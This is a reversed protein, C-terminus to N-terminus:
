ALLHFRMFALIQRIIERSEESDHFLDFAHPAEPHNTFTIPLNCTLAQALFRDLTENLHPMEDLGARAIFLPVDKPLDAVSKGACPNVFGWMGAADAVHTFGDTDLMLGYCLVSCKLYERDERM